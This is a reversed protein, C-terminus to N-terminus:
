PLSHDHPQLLEAHRFGRHTTGIKYAKLAHGRVRRRRTAPEVSQLDIEGPTQLECRNWSAQKTVRGEESDESWM